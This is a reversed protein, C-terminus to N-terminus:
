SKQRTMHPRVESPCIETLIRSEEFLIMEAVDGDARDVFVHVCM